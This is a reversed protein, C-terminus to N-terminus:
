ARPGDRLADLQERAAAPRDTIIAEVGLDACLGIDAEANVTWVHVANGRRRVTRVWDPHARVLEISPGVIRMGRPLDGGRMSLPVRDEVLMVVPVAPAMKQVRRVSMRSFSMVRARLDGGGATWGFRHLLDILYHEVLGSYRTPHKTEIAVEVRRDWGRVLELLEHLTVLRREAPDPEDLDDDLDSWPNKWSGWDLKHLEQLRKTSVVGRGTSTRDLRRDHVCILHGDRTLRVDCELADAGETLARRYAGLTHEASLESAGRHAVVQPLENGRAV